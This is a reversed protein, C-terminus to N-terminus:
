CCFDTRERRTASGDERVLMKIDKVAAETVRAFVRCELGQLFRKSNTVFLDSHGSFDDAVSIKKILVKAAFFPKSNIRCRDPSRAKERRNTFPAPKSQTPAAKLHHREIEAVVSNGIRICFAIKV